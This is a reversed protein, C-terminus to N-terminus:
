RIFIQVQRAQAEAWDEELKKRMAVRQKRTVMNIYDYTYRLVIMLSIGYAIIGWLYPVDVLWCLFWIM